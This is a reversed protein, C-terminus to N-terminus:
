IIQLHDDYIGLKRHVMTLAISDIAVFLCFVHLLTDWPAVNLYKKVNRFHVHQFLNPSESMPSAVAM